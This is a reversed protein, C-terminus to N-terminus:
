VIIKATETASAVADFAWNRISALGQRGEQVSGVVAPDFLRSKETRPKQEVEQGLCTM